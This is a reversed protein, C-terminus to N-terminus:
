VSIGPTPGTVAVARIAATPLRLARYRNQDRSRAQPKGFNSPKLPLVDIVSALANMHAALPDASSNGIFELGLLGPRRDWHSRHKSLEESFPLLRRGITVGSVPHKRGRFRVPPSGAHSIHQHGIM